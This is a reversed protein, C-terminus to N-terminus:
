MSYDGPVKLPDLPNQNNSGPHEVGSELGLRQLVSTSRDKRGLAPFGLWGHLPHDNDGVTYSLRPM